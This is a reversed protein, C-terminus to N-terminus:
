ADPAWFRAPRTLDRPLSRCTKRFEPTLPPKERSKEWIRAPTVLEPLKEREVPFIKWKIDRPGAWNYTKTNIPLYGVNSGVSDTYEGTLMFNLYGSLLLYKHTKEWIEPQNQKIWNVQCASIVKDVLDYLRATKLLPRLLPSIVKEADAKRQDLWVIAPRLAKGDQDVNIVTARQTTISVGAIRNKLSQNKALLERCSRCLMDWYYEPHQEAWGPHESFYPEISIKVLDLIQGKLDVLASRISQTGADVTLILNGNPKM